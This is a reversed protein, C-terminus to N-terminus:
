FLDDYDNLRVMRSSVGSRQDPERSYSQYTHRRARRNYADTSPREQNGFPLMRALNQFIGVQRQPREPTDPTDYYYTNPQHHSSEHAPLHHEYGLQQGVRDELHQYTPYNSTEQATPPLWQDAERLAKVAKTADAFLDAFESIDQHQHPASPTPATGQNNTQPSPPTTYAPAYVDPYDNAFDTAPSLAPNTDFLSIETPAQFVSQAIDITEPTEAFHRDDDPLITQPQDFVAKTLTEPSFVAHESPEDDELRETETLLEEADDTNYFYRPLSRTPEQDHKIPFVTSQYEPQSPEPPVAPEFYNDAIPPLSFWDSSPMSDVRHDPTPHNDPLENQVNVPGYDAFSPAVPLMSQSIPPIRPPFAPDVALADEFLPELYGDSFESLSYEPFVPNATQPEPSDLYKSMLTTDIGAEDTTFGAENSEYASSTTPEFAMTQRYQNLGGLVWPEYDQWLTTLPSQALVDNYFRALKDYGADIVWAELTQRYPHDPDEFYTVSHNEQIVALISVMDYHTVVVMRRHWLLVLHLALQNDFAKSAVVQIDHSLEQLQPLYQTSDSWDTNLTLAQTLPQQTQTPTTQTSVTPEFTPIPSQTSTTTEFSAEFAQDEDTAMDATKDSFPHTLPFEAELTEYALSHNATSVPSITDDHAFFPDSPKSKLTTSLAGTLSTQVNQAHQQTRQGFRKGWQGVAKLSNAMTNGITHSLTPATALQTSEGWFQSIPATEEFARSGITTQTAATSTVPLTEELLPEELSTAATETPLNEATEEGSANSLTEPTDKIITPTDWYKAATQIDDTALTLAPEPQPHRTEGLIPPLGIADDDAGHRLQYARHKNEFFRPFKQLLWPLGRRFFWFILGLVVGLSVLIRLGIGWFNPGSPQRKFVEDIPLQSEPTEPPAETTTTLDIAGTDTTLNTNSLSEEPSVTTTPETIASVPTATVPTLVAAKTELAPPTVGKTNLQKPTTTIPSGLTPLEKTPTPQKAFKSTTQRSSPARTPLPNLLSPAKPSELQNIEQSLRRAIDGPSENDNRPSSASKTAPTPPPATSEAKPPTYHSLDQISLFIKDSKIIIQTENASKRLEMSKKAQDDARLTGPKFGEPFASHPLKIIMRNAERIIDADPVLTPDISININKDNDSTVVMQKDALATLMTYPALTSTVGLLLLLGPIRYHANIPWM